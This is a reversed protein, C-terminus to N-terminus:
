NYTDRWDSLVEEVSPVNPESKWEDLSPNEAQPWPDPRDLFVRSPLTVAEGSVVAEHTRLSPLIEALGSITDPLAARVTNQDASNTLRLSIITGTQALTTDPLETPRQSVALLGIGYKRGERAIRDAAKHTLDLKSSGLYRHAEELVVLVPSYRGIGQNGESGRIAIEFVFDLIVGIAAEAARDPVGSFDLVSIPKDKGLWEEMVDVLPDDGDPDGPPQQFFELRPDLLGLRLRDPNNGYSGYKPGQHPPSGGTGYSEFEAPILNEPDGAREEQVTEPDSADTRTENNEFDLTHWVERINFPIPTEASVASPDIDDLWNADEVYNRRKETVLEEFRTQFTHSAGGRGLFIKLIDEPTLAWYPVRLQEGGDPLVSLVSAIDEFAEKYEGHPDVIIINSNQWGQDVVNQFISAVASTKGAGTSGVIVAHNIVFNDAELTVPVDTDTSLNGFKIHDTDPPPFILELESSTTFHVPDGLEPYTGVGREFNESGRDIQGILNIKLWWDNSDHTATNEELGTQDSVGVESVTAILDVLGQPIRVFSGIQGVDRLRGKFIPSVGALNRDLSVEIISGRVKRVEGIKTPSNNAM